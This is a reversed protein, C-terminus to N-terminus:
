EHLINIVVGFPATDTGELVCAGCRPGECSTPRPSARPDQNRARHGRCHEPNEREGRPDVDLRLVIAAAPTNM